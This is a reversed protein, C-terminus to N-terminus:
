RSRMGGALRLFDNDVISRSERPNNIEAVDFQMRVGNSGLIQFM